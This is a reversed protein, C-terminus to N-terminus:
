NEAPVGADANTHMLFTPPTQSTVQKENSLLDILEQPPNEGLLNNRSGIHAYPGNLTIVPYVLIAVDPRSRGRDIPDSANPKGAPPRYLTITPVDADTTGQAGPADGEWLRLPPSPEGTEKGAGLVLSAASAALCVASILVFARM